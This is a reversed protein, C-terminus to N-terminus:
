SERFVECFLPNKDGGEGEVVASDAAAEVLAAVAARAVVLDDEEAEVAASSVREGVRGVEAESDPMRWRPDAPQVAARFARPALSVTELATAAMAATVPTIVPGGAIEMTEETIRGAAATVTTRMDEATHDMGAEMGRAVMTVKTIATIGRIIGMIATTIVAMTITGTVTGVRTTPGAGAGVGPIPCQGVIGGM